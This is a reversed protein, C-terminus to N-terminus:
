GEMNWDVQFGIFKDENKLVRNIYDAQRDRKRFEFQLYEVLEEMSEFHIVKGTEYEELM